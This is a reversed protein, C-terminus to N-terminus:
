KMLTVNRMKKIQWQQEYENWIKDIYDNIQQESFYKIYFKLEDKM